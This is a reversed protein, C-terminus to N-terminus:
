VLFVKNHDRVLQNVALAIASNPVDAIADVGDVDLWTRTITSGLDPSNKHDAAIVVVPTDGVKGGFDDVALRAAVVSGIGQFDAYAGSQDNLVGIKIPKQQASATGAALSLIAAVAMLIM